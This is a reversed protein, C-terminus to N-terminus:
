LNLNTKCWKVNNIHKKTQNHATTSGHTCGCYNCYTQKHASKLNCSNNNDIHYQERILLEVRNNCPYNEILEIKADNHKIIISSSANGSYNIKHHYRHISMRKSLYHQTTSGIYVKKTKKSTIKYIKGNEYISM